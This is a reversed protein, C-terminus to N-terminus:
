RSSVCLKSTNMQMHCMTCKCTVCQAATERLVISPHSLILDIELNQGVWRAQHPLLHFQVFDFVTQM